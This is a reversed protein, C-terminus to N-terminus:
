RRHRSLRDRSAAEAPGLVGLVKLAHYPAWVAPDHEDRMNLDDDLVMHILDPTYDTLQEAAPSLGQKGQGQRPLTPGGDGGSLAGRLIPLTKALCFKVM